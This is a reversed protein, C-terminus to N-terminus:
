VKEHKTFSTYKQKGNRSGATTKYVVQTTKRGKSIVIRETTENKKNKNKEKHQM